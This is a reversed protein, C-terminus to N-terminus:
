RIVTLLWILFGLLFVGFVIVLIIERKSRKKPQVEPRTLIPMPAEYAFTAKFYSDENKTVFDVMASDLGKKGFMEKSLFIPSIMKVRGGKQGVIDIIAQYLDKNTGVIKNGLVRAVPNEFPLTSLFDGQADDLDLGKSIVESVFCVQESLLIACTGFSIGNKNLFAALQTKFVEADVVELDKVFAPAFPFSLIKGGFHFDIKDRGIFAITDFAAM